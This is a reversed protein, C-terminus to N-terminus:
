WDGVFLRATVDIEVLAIKVGCFGTIPGGEFAIGLIDIRPGMESLAQEALVIRLLRTRDEFTDDAFVRFM